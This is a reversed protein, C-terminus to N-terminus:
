WVDDAMLRGCDGGVFFSLLLLLLGVDCMGGKWVFGCGAGGVM